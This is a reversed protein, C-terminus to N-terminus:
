QVATEESEIPESPNEVLPFWGFWEPRKPPAAKKITLPKVLPPQPAKVMGVKDLTKYALHYKPLFQLEEAKLRMERAMLTAEKYGVRFALLNGVNLMIRSLKEGMLAFDQTSLVCGLKFKRGEKLVDFLNPNVFCHAEDIYLALPYYESPREYRFYNKIGQSVLNGAFLMRERSMGFCDLIFARRSKTFAGWEIPNPGCLIENLRPDSLLFDLRALIGETTVDQKGQAIYDRVNILSKRDHRLCYINAEQLINHMRATLMLNSTSLLMVQNISECINDVIQNEQYPQALPNLSIPTDLSCYLANGHSLAYAEKAFFGAPEVLARAV